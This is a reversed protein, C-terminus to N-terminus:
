NEIQFSAKASLSWQVWLMPQFLGRVKFIKAKLGKIHQVIFVDTKTPEKPVKWCDLKGLM